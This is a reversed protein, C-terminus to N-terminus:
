STISIVGNTMLSILHPENLILEILKPYIIRNRICDPSNPESVKSELLRMSVCGGACFFRWECSRCVSPVQITMFPHTNKQGGVIELLDLSSEIDGLKLEEIDTLDCPYLGGDMGFSLMRYGSQCGRSHCFSVPRRTTLNHLMAIITNEGFSIGNRNMEIIEDIMMEWYQRINLSTLGLTRDRMGKTEKVVNMKVQNLCLESSFYHIIEKLHPLSSKTVVCVVGVHNNYGAERLLKLGRVAAYHSGKSNILLRNQNHIFAPGDISVSCLIGRKYMESAMSSTVAVGNTEVLIRVKIGAEILCDQIHCIDGWALLPEGGWAQISIQPIKYKKCYEILKVLIKELRDSEIYESQSLRRFCYLCRNNCARTLDIMFFRPAFHKSILEEEAGSLVFGRSSLIPLVDSMNQHNFIQDMLSKSTLLTAGSSPQLMFANDGSLYM